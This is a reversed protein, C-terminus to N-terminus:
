ARGVSVYTFGRSRLDEPRYVNRLDVIVPAHMTAKLRELDLARFRDWETIIVVADAGQAAEYPGARFDVGTLMKKAEEMGEPDFAQIHAGMAQLAPIIALAPADRM